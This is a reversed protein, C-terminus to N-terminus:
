TSVSVWYWRVLINIMIKTLGYPSGSMAKDPHMAFVALFVKRKDEKNKM